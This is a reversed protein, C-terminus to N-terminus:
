NDHIAQLNVQLSCDKNLNFLLASQLIPDVIEGKIKKVAEPLSMDSLSGM